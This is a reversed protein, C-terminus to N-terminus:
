KASGCPSGDASAGVWAEEPEPRHLALGFLGRYGDTAPDYATRQAHLAGRVGRSWKTRHLRRQGDELRTFDVFAAPCLVVRGRAPVPRRLGLGLAETVARRSVQAVLRLAVWRRARCLM